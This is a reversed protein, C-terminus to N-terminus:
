ITILLLRLLTVQEHCYQGWDIAYDETDTDDSDSEAENCSWSWLDPTSSKSHINFIGVSISWFVLLFISAGITVSAHVVTMRNAWKVSKIYSLLIVSNSFLVSTSVSIFASVCAVCLVVVSPWTQAGNGWLAGDDDTEDFQTVNFVLTLV